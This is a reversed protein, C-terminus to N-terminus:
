ALPVLGVVKVRNPGIRKFRTVTVAGDPWRYRLKAESGGLIRELATRCHQLYFLEQALTFETRVEEGYELCPEMDCSTLRAVSRDIRHARDSAKLRLSERLASIPFYETKNTKM